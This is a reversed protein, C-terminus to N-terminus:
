TTDSYICRVILFSLYSNPHPTLLCWFNPCRSAFRSAKSSRQPTRATCEDGGAFFLRRCLCAHLADSGFDALTESTLFFPPFSALSSSHALSLSHPDFISGWTISPGLGARYYVQFVVCASAVTHTPDAAPQNLLHHIAALVWSCRFPLASHSQRGAQQVYRGGSCTSRIM